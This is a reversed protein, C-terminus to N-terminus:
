LRIVTKWPGRQVRDVIMTTPEGPPAVPVHTWILDTVEVRLETASPDLPHTVHHMFHHCASPM